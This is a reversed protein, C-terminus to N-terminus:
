TLTTVSAASDIVAESVVRAVVAPVKPAGKVPFVPKAYLIRSPAAVVPLMLKFTVVSKAVPPGM